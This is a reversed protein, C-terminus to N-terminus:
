ALGLEKAAALWEDEVDGKGGGGSGLQPNPAENAMARQLANGKPSAAERQTPAAPESAGTDVDQLAASLVAEADAASLDTDYALHAALTPFAQAGAGTTIAKMRAREPSLAKAGPAAASAGKNGADKKAPATDDEDGDDDAPAGDAKKNKGKMEEEKESATPGAPAALKARLRPAAM